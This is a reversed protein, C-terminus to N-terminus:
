DGENLAETPTSLAAISEDVFQKAHRLGVLVCEDCMHTRGATDVDGNRYMSVHVLLQPSIELEPDRRVDRHERMSVIRNGNGFSSLPAQTPRRPAGCLCGM